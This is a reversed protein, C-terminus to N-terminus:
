ISPTIPLPLVLGRNDDAGAAAAVNTIQQATDTSVLASFFVGAMVAAVLVSSMSLGKKTLSKLSISFVIALRRGTYISRHCERSSLFLIPQPPPASYRLPAVLEQKHWLGGVESESRPSRWWFAVNSAVLTWLCATVLAYCQRMLEVLELEPLQQPLWAEERGRAEGRRNDSPPLRENSMKYM